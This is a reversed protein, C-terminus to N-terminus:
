LILAFELFIVFVLAISVELVRQHHESGNAFGGVMINAKKKKKGGKALMYGVNNSIYIKLVLVNEM